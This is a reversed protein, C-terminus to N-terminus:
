RVALAIDLRTAVALYKLRGVAERYPVKGSVDKHNDSEKRSVPTFVSKEEVMNFKQLIQNIYAEQSVFISGDSQCKIQMGLFNELSGITIQFEEQLLRLFVEIEGDKNGVVLGDDVYITIYLYSDEHTRYCLCPDVTRDKLGAKKMFNVFRKNWCRPAQKVGYLSRKLRCVCGSGDDFGEPQELFVEEELEGYLFATKVDFQKLKMGKSTAVVHLTRVTDYRAVPSFTEDYDIGQKQAYGKVVLRAKFRANSDCSKKLRMVKANIPRNVLKWTENEKLSALEENMAKMWQNRENSQMVETYSIPSLCYDGQSDDALCVFEGSTM